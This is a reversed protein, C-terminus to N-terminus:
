FIQVPWHVTSKDFYKLPNNLYTLYLTSFFSATYGLMRRKIETVVRGNVRPRRFACNPPSRLPHAERREDDLLCAASFSTTTERVVLILQHYRKIIDAAFSIGLGDPPDFNSDDVLISHVKRLSSCLHCCQSCRDLSKDLDLAFFYRPTVVKLQHCSLHNLKVYLASLFGDLVSRPIAICERRQAFPEDHRAILLGDRSIFVLNLYRKADKINTLKKSPCIGQKLHTSEDM